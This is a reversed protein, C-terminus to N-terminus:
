RCNKKLKFKTETERADIFGMVEREHLRFHQEHIMACPPLPRVPFLVGSFWRISIFRALSNWTSIADGSRHCNDLSGCKVNRFIRASALREDDTKSPYFIVTRDILLLRWTKGIFAANGRM